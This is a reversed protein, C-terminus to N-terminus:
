HLLIVSEAGVDLVSAVREIRGVQKPVRPFVLRFVAARLGGGVQM